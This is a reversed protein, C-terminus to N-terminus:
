ARPPPILAEPALGEPAPAAALAYSLPVPALRMAPGQPGAVGDLCHGSMTACPAAAHADAAHDADAPVAPAHHDEAHMAHAPMQAAGGPQALAGLGHEGMGACWLALLVLCAAFLRSM